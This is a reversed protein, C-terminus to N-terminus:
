TAHFRQADFDHEHKRVLDKGQSTLITREFVTYMFEQKAKFLESDDPTTPTYHEDLVEAVDQMRATAHLTRNWQDWNEENKLTPFLTVDRKIGKM